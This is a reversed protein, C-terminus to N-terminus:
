KKIILVHVFSNARSQKALFFNGGSKRGINPPYFITPDVKMKIERMKKDRENEEKGFMDRGAPEAVAAVPSDLSM